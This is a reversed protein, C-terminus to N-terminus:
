QLVDQLVSPHVEAAQLSQLLRQVTARRGESRRWQVLGALAAGHTSLSHDARCRFLAEASLGLDMLVSEWEAGLRAALRSLEQDSPVRRLVSDPLQWVDTSGPEPPTQLELQLRDRAWSFDELSRLFCHFARPGRTPLLDLLRLAKLRNTALSEIDEVQAETLVEEQFLFPVITDCVLLEGSLYVRHKRLVAKHVPDM